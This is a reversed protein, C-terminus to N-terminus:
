WHFISINNSFQTTVSLHPGKLAATKFIASVCLLCLQCAALVFEASSSQEVCLLPRLRCRGAVNRSFRSRVFSGIEMPIMRFRGALHVSTERRKKRGMKATLMILSEQRRKAHWMINSNMQFLTLRQLRKVAKAQASLYSTDSTISCMHFAHLNPFSPFKGKTPKESETVPQIRMQSVSSKAKECNLLKAILLVKLREM